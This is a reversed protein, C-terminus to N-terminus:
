GKISAFLSAVRIASAKRHRKGREKYREEADPDVIPLGKVSEDVLDRDDVTIQTRLDKRGMQSLAYATRNLNKELAELRDPISAVLDGAEEYIHEKQKSNEVLQQGRRIMQRLRHLEVRSAMVGETILALMTSNSVKKRM